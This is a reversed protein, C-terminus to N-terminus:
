HKDLKVIANQNEIQQIYKEFKFESINFSEKRQQTQKQRRISRTFRRISQESNLILGPVSVSNGTDDKAVMTFYSSNCHKTIGTKINESEVRIGIVM